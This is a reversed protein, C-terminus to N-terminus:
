EIKGPSCSWIFSVSTLSLGPTLSCNISGLNIHIDLKDAYTPSEPGEEKGGEKGERKKGGKGGKQERKSVFHLVFMILAPCLWM